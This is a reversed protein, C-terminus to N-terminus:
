VGYHFYQPRSACVIREVKSFRLKKNGYSLNGSDAPLKGNRLQYIRVDALNMSIGNDFAVNWGYSSTGINVYISNQVANGAFATEKSDLSFEFYIDNVKGAYKQCMFFKEQEKKKHKKSVESSNKTQKVQPELLSLYGKTEAIPIDDIFTSERLKNQKKSSTQESSTKNESKPTEDILTEETSLEELSIDSSMYEEPDVYKVEKFDDITIDSSDDLSIGEDLISSETDAIIDGEVDSLTIEEIQEAVTEEQPEDSFIDIGIETDVNSDDSSNLFDDEKIDDWSSLDLEVNDLNFDLDSNTNEEDEFGNSWAGLDITDSASSTNNNEGDLFHDIDNEQNDSRLFSPFGDEENEINNETENVM